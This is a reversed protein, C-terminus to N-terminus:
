RLRKRLGLNQHNIKMKGSNKQRKKFFFEINDIGIQDINYGM